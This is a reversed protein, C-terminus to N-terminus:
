PVCGPPLTDCFQSLTGNPVFGIIIEGRSIDDNQSLNPYPCGTEDGKDTIIVEKLIPTKTADIIGLAFLAARFNCVIAYNQIAERIDDETLDCLAVGGADPVKIPVLYVRNGWRLFIHVLFIRNEFEDFAYSITYTGKIYPGKVKISALDDSEISPLCICDCFLGVPDETGGALATGSFSSILLGALVITM